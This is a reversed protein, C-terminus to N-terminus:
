GKAIIGERLLLEYNDRLWANVERRLTFHDKLKTPKGTQVWADLAAALYFCHVNDGNIDPEYPSIAFAYHLM